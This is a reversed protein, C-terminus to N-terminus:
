AGLILINVEFSIIDGIDVEQDFSLRPIDKWFIFICDILVDFDALMESDNVNNAGDQMGLHVDIIPDSVFVDQLSLEGDHSDLVRFSESEM